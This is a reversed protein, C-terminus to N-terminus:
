LNKVVVKFNVSQFDLKALRVLDDDKMSIVSSQSKIEDTTIIEQKLDLFNKEFLSILFNMEFMINVEEMSVSKTTM